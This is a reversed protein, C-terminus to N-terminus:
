YNPTSYLTLLQVYSTLGYMYDTSVEKLVSIHHIFFSILWIPYMIGYNHANVFLNYWTGFTLNIKLVVFKIIIIM